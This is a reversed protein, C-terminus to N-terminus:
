SKRPDLDDYVDIAPDNWGERGFLEMVHPYVAAAFGASDEALVANLRGYVDTRM